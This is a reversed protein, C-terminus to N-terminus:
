FYKSLTLELRQLTQAIPLNDQANHPGALMQLYFNAGLTTDENIRRTYGFGIPFSSYSKLYKRVDEKEGTYEDKMKASLLISHGYGLKFNVSNKKLTSTSVGVFLSNKWFTSKTFRKEFGGGEFSLDLDYEAFFNKSLHYKTYIGFAPRAKGDKPTAIDLFSGTWYKPTQFCLKFGVEFKDQAQSTNIGLFSILILLLILKNNKM